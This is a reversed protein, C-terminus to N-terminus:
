CLDTRLTPADYAPRSHLHSLTCNVHLRVRMGVYTYTRSVCM